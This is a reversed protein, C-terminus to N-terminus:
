QIVCSNVQADVFIITIHNYTSKYVKKQLVPLDIQRQSIHHFGGQEIEDLESAEPTLLTLLEEEIQTIQIM